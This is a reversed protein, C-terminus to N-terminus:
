RDLHRNGWSSPPKRKPRPSLMVEGPHVLEIDDTVPLPMTPEIVHADRVNRDIEANTSSHFRWARVLSDFDSLIGIVDGVHDRRHARWAENDENMWPVIAEIYSELPIGPGDFVEHEEHDEVLAHIASAVFIADQSTIPALVRNASTYSVYATLFDEALALTTGGDHLVGHSLLTDIDVQNTSFGVNEEMFVFFAALMDPGYLTSSSM